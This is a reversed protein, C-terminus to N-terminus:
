PPPSWGSTYRFAERGARPSTRSSRRATMVDADVDLPDTFESGSQNSPM